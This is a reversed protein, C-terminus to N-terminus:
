GEGMLTSLSHFLPRRSGDPRLTSYASEVFDTGFTPAFNLNWLFSLETDTWDSALADRVPRLIYYAAMLMFVFAFSLLVARLEHAEIRSATKMIRQFWNGHTNM